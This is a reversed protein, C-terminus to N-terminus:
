EQFDDQINNLYSDSDYDSDDDGGSVIKLRPKKIPMKSEVQEKVLKGIACIFPDNLEYRIGIVKITIKM